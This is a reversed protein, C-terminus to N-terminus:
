KVPRVSDGDKSNAESPKVTFSAGGGSASSKVQDSRYLLRKAPCILHNLM